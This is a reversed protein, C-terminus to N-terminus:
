FRFKNIPYEIKIRAGKHREMCLACLKHNNIKHITDRRFEKYKKNNWINSIDDLFINGLIYDGQADYCCPGIDGNAYIILSEWLWPCPSIKASNFRYRNFDKSLFREELKLDPYNCSNGLYLNPTKLSLSDIGIDMALDRIKDIHGQADKIMIFQLNVLPKKQRKQKKIEVLYRLNELVKHFGDVGKYHFYSEADWADLSIVLKDIKYKALKEIGRKDLILFNTYIEVCIGKNKIHELMRYIDENLFPEGFGGLSIQISYDAMKDIIKRFDVFAMRANNRRVLGIGTPCLMCKLNCFNTIELLFRHPLGLGYNSLLIKSIKNLLYNLFKQPNPKIKIFRKFRRSFEYMEQYRM